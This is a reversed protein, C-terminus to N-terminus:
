GGAGVPVRGNSKPKVANISQQPSMYEDGGERLPMNELERVDNPSYVGKDIAIAYAAWRKETDGRLLGDVVFEAFFDDRDAVPMLDKRIAQEWRVVWPRITSVVHDIGLHEINSFTSRAHEGIKFPQVRFLRAVEEISLRRQDVFQADEPSVSFANAKMGEELVAVKQANDLGVHMAEFDARMRAHAEASLSGPHELVLSPRAGNSFFRAAFEQSALGLGIAERAVGIPSLGTVGNISLGPIHLMDRSNLVRRESYGPPSVIYQLEQTTPDRRISVRHPSIPWLATVRGGAMEKWAFANGGLLLHSMMTERFQFSTQEPNPQDHLLSYLPHQPAREKGRPELRRYVNLPLSAIDEAIVRVCAYVAMLRLATEANVPTGTASMGTRGLSALYVSLDPSFDRKETKGFPWLRM